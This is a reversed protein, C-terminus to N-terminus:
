FLEIKLKKILASVKKIDTKRTTTFTLAEVNMDYLGNFEIHCNWYHNKSFKDANRSLAGALKQQDEEKNFEYTEAYIM